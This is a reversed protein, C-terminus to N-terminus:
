SALVIFVSGCLCLCLCFSLSLCAMLLSDLLLGFTTDPLKKQDSLTKRIVVQCISAEPQLLLCPAVLPHDLHLVLGDHLEGVLKVLDFKGGLNILDIVRQHESNVSCARTSFHTSQSSTICNESPLSLERGLNILDAEPFSQHKPLVLLINTTM